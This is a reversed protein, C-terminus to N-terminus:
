DEENEDEEDPRGRVFTSLSVYNSSGPYFVTVVVRYGLIDNGM